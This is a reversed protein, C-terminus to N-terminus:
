RSRRGLSRVREMEKERSARRRAGRMSGRKAAEGDGRGRGRVWRADRPVVELGLGREEQDGSKPAPKEM